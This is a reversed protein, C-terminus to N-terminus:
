QYAIKKDTNCVVYRLSTLTFDYTTVVDLEDVVHVGFVVHQKDIAKQGIVHDVIAVFFLDFRFRILKSSVFSKQREDASFRRYIEFPEDFCELFGSLASNGCTESTEEQEQKEEQEEM